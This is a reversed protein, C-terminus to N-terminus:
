AGRAKAIFAAVDEACVGVAGPSLQVKRLKGQRMWLRVTVIALGLAAAAERVRMVRLTPAEVSAAVPAAAFFAKLASEVEELCPARRTVSGAEGTEEVVISKLALPLLTKQEDSSKLFRIASPRRNHRPSM